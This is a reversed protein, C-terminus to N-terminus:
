RLNNIYEELNVRDSPLKYYEYWSKATKACVEFYKGVGSFSGIEKFKTILEEKSPKEIIRRKHKYVCKTCYTAEDSIEIGCDKCYHHKKKNHVVINSGCYTDTQSHCNPCLIQLNELRNDTHNGNIHHLQLVLPKGNWENILGCIECKNEKLGERILKEKLKSSKVCKNDKMYKSAPIYRNSNYKYHTFHSADLNYEKIKRRLTNSNKGSSNIGLKRLAESFSESEEVAKQVKEKSWDHKIYM